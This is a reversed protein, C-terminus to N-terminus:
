YLYTANSGIIAYSAPQDAVRVANARETASCLIATTFKRAFDNMDVARSFVLPAKKEVEINPDRLWGGLASM